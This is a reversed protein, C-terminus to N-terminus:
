ELTRVLFSLHDLLVHGCSYKYLRAYKENDKFGITSNNNHKSRKADELLQLQHLSMIDFYVCTYWIKKWLLQTWYTKYVMYLTKIIIEVFFIRWLYWFYFRSGDICQNRNRNITINWVVFSYLPLFPFSHLM